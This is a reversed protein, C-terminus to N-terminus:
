ATQPPLIDLRVKEVHKMLTPWGYKAEDKTQRLAEAVPNLVAAMFRDFPGDPENGATKRPLPLKEHVALWYRCATAIIRDLAAAEAANRSSQFGFDGSLEGRLKAIIEALRRLQLALQYDVRARRFTARRDADGILDALENASLDPMDAMVLPTWEPKFCEVRASGKDYFCDVFTRLAKEAEDLQRTKHKFDFEGDKAWQLLSLSFEIQIDLAEVMRGLRGQEITASGALLRGIEAKQKASLMM